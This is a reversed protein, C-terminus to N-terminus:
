QNAHDFANQLQSTQKKSTFSTLMKHKRPKWDDGRILPNQNTHAKMQMATPPICNTYKTPDMKDPSNLPFHQNQLKLGNWVDKHKNSHWSYLCTIKVSTPPSFGWKAEWQCRSTHWNTENGNILVKWQFSLSAREGTLYAKNVTNVEPTRLKRRSFFCVILEHFLWTNHSKANLLSLFRQSNSCTIPITHPVFYPRNVVIFKATNKSRWSQSLFIGIRPPLDISKCSPICKTASKILLQKKSTFLTFMKHKKPKWDDMSHLRYWITHLSRKRASIRAHVKIIVTPDM